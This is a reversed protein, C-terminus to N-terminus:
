NFNCFEMNETYVCVKTVCRHDRGVICYSDTPCKEKQNYFCLNNKYYSWRSRLDCTGNQCCNQKDTSCYYNDPCARNNPCQVISQTQIFILTFLISTFFLFQISM